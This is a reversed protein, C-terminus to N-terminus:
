PHEGIGGFAPTVRLVALVPLASGLHGVEPDGVRGLHGAPEGVVLDQQVRLQTLHLHVALHQEGLVL